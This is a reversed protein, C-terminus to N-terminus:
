VHCMTKDVAQASVRKTISKTRVGFVSVIVAILCYQDNHVRIADYRFVCAATVSLVDYVIVRASSSVSLNKVFFFFLFIIDRRFLRVSVYDALAQIGHPFRKADAQLKGDVTRNSAMWCDDMIVYEYGVKDYGENVLYDATTM